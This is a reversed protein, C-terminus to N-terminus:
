NWRVLTLKNIAILKSFLIKALKNKILKFISKYHKSTKETGYFRAKHEACVGFSSLMHRHQLHLVNKHTFPSMTLNSIPDTTM